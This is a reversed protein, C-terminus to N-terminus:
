LYNYNSDGGADGATVIPANMRRVEQVGTDAPIDSFDNPQGATRVVKRKAVFHKEATNCKQMSEFFDFVLHAYKPEVNHAQAMEVRAKANKEKILDFVHDSYHRCYRRVETIHKKIVIPDLEVGKFKIEKPLEAGESAGNLAYHMLISNRVFPFNDATLVDPSGRGGSNLQNEPDNWDNILGAEAVAVQKATWVRSINAEYDYTASL